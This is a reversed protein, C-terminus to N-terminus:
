PIVDVAYSQIVSEKSSSNPARESKTPTDVHQSGSNGLPTLSWDGVTTFPKTM